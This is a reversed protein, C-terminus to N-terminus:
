TFIISCFTNTVYVHIHFFYMRKAYPLIKGSYLVIHTFSIIRITPIDPWLNQPMKQLTFLKGKRKYKSSFIIIDWCQSFGFSKLGRQVKMLQNEFLAMNPNKTVIIKWQRAISPRQRRCSQSTLLNPLYFQIATRKPPPM